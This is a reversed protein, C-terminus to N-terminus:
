PKRYIVGKRDIEAEYRAVYRFVSSNERNPVYTGSIRSFGLLIMQEDLARFIERSKAKSMSAIQAEYTIVAFNEGPTSSQRRKDTYSDMEYLMVAPLEPLNQSYVSRFGNPSLLDIVAPRVANFIKNEYDIM